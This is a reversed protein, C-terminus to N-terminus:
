NISDHINYHQLYTILDSDKSILSFSVQLFYIYILIDEM